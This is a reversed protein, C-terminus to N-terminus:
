SVSGPGAGWVRAAASSGLGETGGRVSADCRSRAWGGARPPGKGGPELWARRPGGCAILRLKRPRPPCRATPACLRDQAPARRDDRPRARVGVVWQGCSHGCVVCRPRVSM